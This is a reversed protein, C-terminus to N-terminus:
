YYGDTSGGEDLSPPSVINALRNNGLTNANVTAGFVARKGTSMTFPLSIMLTALVLLFVGQGVSIQQPNQKWRHFKFGSAIFFVIGSVISTSGIIGLSQSGSDRLSMQITTLDTSSGALAPIGIVVLLVIVVAKLVNTSKLQKALRQFFRM